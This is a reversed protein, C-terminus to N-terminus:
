LQTRGPWLLESVVRAAERGASGLNYPTVDALRPIAYKEPFAIASKLHSILKEQSSFTEGLSSLGSVVPDQRLQETSFHSNGYSAYLSRSVSNFYESPDFFIIPRGFLNFEHSISSVDTVLIDTNTLISVTDSNSIWMGGKALVLNKLKKEWDVGGTLRFFDNHNKQVRSAPHLLVSFSIEPLSGLAEIIEMGLKRLSLAPDWTPAYLVRAKAKEPGLPQVEELGPAREALIRGPLHDTKPYGINLFRNQIERPLKYHTAAEVLQNRQALCTVFYWDFFGFYEEPVFKWKVPLNHSVYVADSARVAVPEIKASILADIKPLFKAFQADIVVIEGCEIDRKVIQLDFVPRGWSFQTLLIARVGEKQSLNALIPTYYLSFVIENFDLAVNKLPNPQESRIRKRLSLISPAAALFSVIPELVRLPVTLGKKFKRTAVAFGKKGVFFGVM